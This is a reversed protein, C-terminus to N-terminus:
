LRVTVPVKVEPAVTKFCATGSVKITCYTGTPFVGVMRFSALASYAFCSFDQRTGQQKAIPTSLLGNRQNLIVPNGVDERDRRILVPDSRPPTASNKGFSVVRANPM